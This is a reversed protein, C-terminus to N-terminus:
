FAHEPQWLYIDLDITDTEDFRIGEQQLLAKQMEHGSGRLSIQGKSNVVRHWPLDDKRSSSYLVWSVQRAGRPDGAYAAIQGYTSVRGPPITKIIKKVKDSFSPENEIMIMSERRLYRSDM